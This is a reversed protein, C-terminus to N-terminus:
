DLAKQLRLHVRDKGMISIIEYMSPSDKSGTLAVRMLSSAAAMNGKFASPNAKYERNVTAFGHRSAIEKVSNWWTAEDPGYAMNDAVDNLFEKIFDRDFAPDFPLGAEKKRAYEDDYFFAVLPLIDGYKAYDKRPNPRDREINLIKKFYAPDLEIKAELEPTLRNQGRISKIVTEKRRALEELRHAADAINGIQVEDLGGTAEKRYRAIFPITAGDDMLALVREVSDPSLGTLEATQIIIGKEM